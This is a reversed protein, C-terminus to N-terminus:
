FLGAKCTLQAVNKCGPSHRSDSWFQSAIIDKFFIMNDQADTAHGIYHFIQAHKLAINHWRISGLDGEVTRMEVVYISVLATDPDWLHLATFSYACALGKTDDIRQAGELDYFAWCSGVIAVYQTRRGYGDNINSIGQGSNTANVVLFIGGRGAQIGTLELRGWNGRTRIPVSPRMSRI